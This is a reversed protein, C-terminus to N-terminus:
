TLGLRLDSTDPRAVVGGVVDNCNSEEEGAPRDTHKNMNNDWVM